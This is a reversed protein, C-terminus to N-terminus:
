YHVLFERLEEFFKPDAAELFRTKHDKYLVARNHRDSIYGMHDKRTPSFEDPWSTKRLSMIRGDMPNSKLSFPLENAKFFALVLDSLKM